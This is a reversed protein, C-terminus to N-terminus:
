EQNHQPTSPTAPTGTTTGASTTAAATSAPATRDAATGDDDGDNDDDAPRLRLRVDPGLQTVAGGGAPDPVWRHAAALTPVGVPPFMPTGEGLVVPAIYSVLEDVAGTALFAGAIRPGGEVLVHRAGRGHLEALAAPVDHTALQLFGPGRVAADQPVPRLGMVARLPQAPPTSGAAGDDDTPVPRATLRPNDALVTGTGALVADVRARIAHGDARAQTGTIWQSTGDAAAVRGDLSSATKLTVFPRSEATARLWRGNLHESEAQRLGGDTEVGRDRLWRAGGAAQATRDPAAFVVRRIGAEHIAASCPGTRGQHNCPELTVVMTGGAPDAGRSRADALAAVEAHPTGAGRHYGSGLVQGESSLVVAGVLPNAGRVGEAALELARDM